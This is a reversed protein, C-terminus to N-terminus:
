PIMVCHMKCSTHTICWSLCEDIASLVRECSMQRFYLSPLLLLLWLWILLPLPLLFMDTKKQSKCCCCCNNNNDENNHYENNHYKTLILCVFRTSAFRRTYNIIWSYRLPTHFTFVISLLWETVHTKTQRTVTWRIQNSPPLLTM